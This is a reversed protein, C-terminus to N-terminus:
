TKKELRGKNSPDLFAASLAAYSIFDKPIPSWLLLALLLLLPLLWVWGPPRWHRELRVSMGWQELGRMGTKPDFGPPEVVRFGCRNIAREIRHHCREAARENNIEGAEDKALGFRVRMGGDTGPQRGRAHQDSLVVSEWGPATRLKSVAQVLEALDTQVEQEHSGGPQEKDLAFLRVGTIEAPARSGRDLKFHTGRWEATQPPLFLEPAIDLRQLLEQFARPNEEGDGDNIAVEEMSRQEESADSGPKRRGPEQPTMEAFYELLMRHIFIYGGGVKKLLILKACHDLFKVLKFPTYGNLWLTLRLAYHKIVASGGRNLAVIMGVILGFSSGTSLGFIARFILGVALWTVLFAALSNKLSLKIGHNPSAKGVKVRDTFGGVLGSILGLISGPITRKWFQNWKWNITEVLAIHNLSGAGLGGILGVIPVFILGSTLGSILGSILGGISGSLVGNKLSSESWCGLGVGVLITLGVHLGANLPARQEFGASLGFILGLSLAVVAGYAVRKARAGLWSPRLGEVLFVSQSHERMKGALWSLWHIIKEKPFALSATGKRQFMQEVYLGFIQKRRDESAGKQTALENGGAGQYALSMISLMLPTQALEQLRPDNGVAERLAALKSGGGALYNSVEESSLPELSIAGNLKLRKPLWRYENLRCCIVLGSPKLEEIFANIAAVCDPQLATPVEDLGDLLPVLYDDQLWSRAIKVPVRYKESLEAAIWEALPQKKRWSSLNLVFPVREKADSKARALLNAALELLTTTKGSGPEGLILLLGTANFITTINRDQLLLQSRQSSLEVVYKWPPEVAEEMPRKGLSILAENYLSNRLVGDVWTENVRDLLILLQSRQEEDPAVAIAPYLRAESIGLAALQGNQTATYIKDADEPKLQLHLRISGATALTVLVKGLGLLNSLGALFKDREEDSFEDINKGALRLEIVLKDKPPLLEKADAERPRVPKEGTIGWILQELPNPNTVRFDVWHLNALTWPIDPTTKASPLVVPIVPCERKVFQSLFAQIEQNQWPGITSEGVFVATSRISEIQQGLSTQWSTGPRIQEEDLWPKINREALKQSIERVAPKDESNHCLFVDFIEAKSDHANVYFGIRYESPM